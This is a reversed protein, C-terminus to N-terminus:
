GESLCLVVDESICVVVSIVSGSTASHFRVIGEHSKCKIIQVM